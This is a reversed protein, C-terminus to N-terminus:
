FVLYVVNNRQVQTMRFSLTFYFTLGDWVNAITQTISVSIIIYRMEEFLGRGRVTQEDCSQGVSLVSRMVIIM